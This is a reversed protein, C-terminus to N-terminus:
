QTPRWLRLGLKDFIPKARCFVTVRSSGAIALGVLENTESLVGAGSDGPETFKTCLVVDSFGVRVRSGQQRPLSIFIRANTDFVSGTSYSSTRGIKKVAMKRRIKDSVAAVEGLNPYVHDLDSRNLM